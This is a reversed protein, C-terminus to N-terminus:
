RKQGGGVGGNVGAAAPPPLSFGEDVNQLQPRRQQHGQGPGGQGSGGGAMHPQQGPQQGQPPPKANTLRRKGSGVMPGLASEGGGGGSSGGNGNSSGSGQGGGEDGGGESSGADAPATAPTFAFFASTSDAPSPAISSGVGSQNHQQNYQYQQQQGPGGSPGGHQQQHHQQQHQQQQPFNMQPNGQHHQINNHQQHQQNSSQPWAYGGALSVGFPNHGGNGGSALFASYFDMNGGGPGGSQGGQNGANNNFALMGSPGAPGGPFDFNPPSQLLASGGGGAAQSHGLGANQGFNGNGSQRPPFPMSQPGGLHAMSQPSGVGYSSGGSGSSGAGNTPGSSSASSSDTVSNSSESMMRMDHPRDSGYSGMLNAYHNLQAGFSGSDFSSPMGTGFSGPGGSGKGEGHSGAMGGGRAAGPVPIGEMGISSHDFATSGPFSTGYSSLAALFSDQDMPSFASAGPGFGGSSVGASNTGGNGGGSGSGNGPGMQMAGFGGVGTGMGDFFFPPLSTNGSPPANPDFSGPLAERQAQQQKLLQAQLQALQSAQRAQQENLESSHNLHPHPPHQAMALPFAPQHQKIPTAAGSSGPGPSNFRSPANSTVASMSLGAEIGSRSASRSHTASPPGNSSLKLLPTLREERYADRAEQSLTWWSGKGAASSPRPVKVFLHGKISLTSKIRNKVRAEWDKGFAWEQVEPFRKCMQEFLDQIVLRGHESHYLTACIMEGWNLRKGTVASAAIRPNHAHTRDGANSSSSPLRRHTWGPSSAASAPASSDASMLSLNNLDIGPPLQSLHPAFAAAGGPSSASTTSARFPTSPSANGMPASSTSPAYHAAAANGSGERQQQQAYTSLQANAYALAAPGSTPTHVPSDSVPDHQGPARISTNSSPSFFM